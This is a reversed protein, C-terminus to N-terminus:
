TAQVLCSIYDAFFSIVFPLLTLWDKQVVPVHRTNIQCILIIIVIARCWLSSQNTTCLFIQTLHASLKKTLSIRQPLITLFFQTVGKIATVWALNVLHSQRKQWIPLLYDKASFYMDFYCVHSTYM